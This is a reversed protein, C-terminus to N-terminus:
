RSRDSLKWVELGDIQRITGAQCHQWLRKPIQSSEFMERQLFTPTHCNGFLCKSINRRQFEQIKRTTGLHFFQRRLDCMLPEKSFIYKTSASNFSNGIPSELNLPGNTPLTAMKGRNGWYSSLNTPSSNGPISISAPYKQVTSEVSLNSTPKKHSVFTVVPHEGALCDRISEWILNDM